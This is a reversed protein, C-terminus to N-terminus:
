APFACTLVVAVGAVLLSVNPPMIVPGRWNSRRREQRNAHERMLRASSEAASCFVIPSVASSNALLFRNAGVQKMRLAYCGNLDEAHRFLHRQRLRVSVGYIKALPRPNM